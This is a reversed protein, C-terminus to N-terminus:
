DCFVYNEYQIRKKEDDKHYGCKPCRIDQMKLGSSTFLVFGCEACRFMQKRKGTITNAM